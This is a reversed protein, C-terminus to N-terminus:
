GGVFGRHAGKAIEEASFEYGSYDPQRGPVEIRQEITGMRGGWLRPCALPRAGPRHDAPQRDAALNAPSQPCGTRSAERRVRVRFSCAIFTELIRLRTPPGSTSASAIPM